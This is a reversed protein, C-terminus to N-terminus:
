PLSNWSRGAATGGNMLVARGFPKTATGLGGLLTQHCVTCAPVTGAIQWEDKLVSPFAASAHVARPTACLLLAGLM